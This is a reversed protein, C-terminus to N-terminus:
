PDCGSQLFHSRAMLVKEVYGFNKPLRSADRAMNPWRWGAHYASLAYILKGEYAHLFKSLVKAGCLVNVRPDYADHCGNGEATRPMLQMLGMAGVGSRADARFNSEVRIVGMLLSADVGYEQAAETALPLVAECREKRSAAFTIKQTRQPDYGAGRSGSGTTGSTSCAPAAM